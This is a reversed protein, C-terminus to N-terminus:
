GTQLVLLSGMTSLVSYQLLLGMLLALFVTDYSGQTVMLCERM